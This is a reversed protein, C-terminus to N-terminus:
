SGAARLMRSTLGQAALACAIAAAFSLATGLQPLLVVLALCFAALSTIGFTMGRLLAVTYAAGSARHSFVALIGGLTPVMALLGSWHAGIRAALGTVILTVIAGAIMRYALEYRPLTGPRQPSVRPFLRPAAVLGLLAAALALPLTRALMSLLAAAVAWAALGALLSLLWGRRLATWAYAVSYTISAFVAALSGVAADAAFGAGRELALLFLVPGTVLPLGALWGAVQPGWRRAALTVLALCAPVLLLKLALM